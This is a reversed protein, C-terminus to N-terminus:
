GAGPARSRAAGDLGDMAILDRHEALQRQKEADSLGLARAVEDAIARGVALDKDGLNGADTRRLAVDAVSTAMERELAHRVEALIFPRDPAIRAPGLAEARRAASPPHAVGRRVM